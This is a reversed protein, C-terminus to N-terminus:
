GVLVKVRIGVSVGINIGVASGEPAGVSVGINIGIDSIEPAGVSM